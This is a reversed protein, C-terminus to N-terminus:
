DRKFVGTLGAVVIAALLWGAFIFGFSVWAVWGNAVFSDRQKFNAVPLLLDVTYRFANFSPQEPGPKAPHLLDPDPSVLQFLVSGVVLLVLWPILARVPRYGYGITWRLLASWVVSPWRAWGQIQARRARQKGIAVTRAALEDGRRRYVAALQEYPQPSFSNRPLWWRLRDNATADPSGIVDYVFGDLELRAPPQQRAPWTRMEDYWVGVQALRLNLDGALVAPCMRVAGGVSAAQLNVGRTLTAATWDLWAKVHVSPLSIEGTCQAKRVFMGANVTLGEAALAKGNPNSFVAETCHLPGTIRAGHMRVEGTCQAKSLFMGADVTLGDASLAAGHPNTFVAEICTLQGGIHAGSLRVEGSCQVKNLSMAIGVTLGEATLAACDPNAFDADSCALRGGIHAERLVVGRDCRFGSSLNLTHTVKLRRASLRCRLYSSRLNINPAEAKALDLRHHLHCGFLELPCRLKWGGLNLRGVVHAGRLRVAVVTEALQPGHGTLLQFLVQARVWRDRDWEQGRVPDDQGARRCRLDLLGGEAAKACLQQEQPWLEWAELLRREGVPV